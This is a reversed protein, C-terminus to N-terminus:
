ARTWPDNAPTQSAILALAETSAPSDLDGLTIAAQLRVMADRDRALVLLAKQIAPSDKVFSAALRASQERVGPEPDELGAHLDGLQLRDLAGLTWLANVCGLTNPRTDVLRRLAGEADVANREILLRQAAERWWADADALTAVL